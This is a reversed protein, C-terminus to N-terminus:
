QRGARYSSGRPVMKLTARERDEESARLWTKEYDTELRALLAANDPQKKQAIYFALGAIFAPLFRFPFDGTNSFAGADEIRRLVWYYLTYPGQQGPLPWLHVIPAPRQRDIYIETPRGLIGPNTRQAQTPLSVRTLNYRTVQSTTPIQIMYEILDVIDTGLTYTAVGYTLLQSREEMTWMNLGRNAWDAFLLNVSRRATRMDYGTRSEVGAREFAEEIADIFDLDFVATGSTTM